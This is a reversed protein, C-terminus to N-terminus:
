KVIVAFGFQGDQKYYLTNTAEDWELHGNRSAAEKDSLAKGDNLLSLRLSGKDLLGQIVTTQKAGTYTVLAVYEGALPVTPNFYKTFTYAGDDFGYYGMATDAGKKLADLGGEYNAASATLWAGIGEVTSAGGFYTKAAEVTCLYASFNGAYQEETVGEPGVTTLRAWTPTAFASGVAACGAVLAIMLKKM